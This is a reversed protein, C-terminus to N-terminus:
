MKLARLPLFKQEQEQEKYIKQSKNGHCKTKSFNKFIYYSQVVWLNNLLQAFQLYYYCDIKGLVKLVETVWPLM